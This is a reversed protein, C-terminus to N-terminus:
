RATERKPHVENFRNYPKARNYAKSQNIDRADAEGGWNVNERGDAVTTKGAQKTEL